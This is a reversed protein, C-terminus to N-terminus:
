PCLQVAQQTSSAAQQKPHWPNFTGQPSASIPYKWVECFTLRRLRSSV